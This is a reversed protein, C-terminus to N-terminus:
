SHFPEHFPFASSVQFCKENREDTAGVRMERTYIVLCVADSLVNDCSVAAETYKHDNGEAATCNTDVPGAPFVTGISAFVITILRMMKFQLM